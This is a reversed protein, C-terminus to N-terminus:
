QGDRQQSFIQKKGHNQDCQRNTHSNTDEVNMEPLFLILFVCQSLCLKRKQNRCTEMLVDYTVM